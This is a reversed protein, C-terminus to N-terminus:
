QVTKYEIWKGDKLTEFVGWEPKGINRGKVRLPISADHQCYPLPDDLAIWGREDILANWEDYLDDLSDYWYDASCLDSDAGSYAFLCVGEGTQYLMIKCIYSSDDSKRPEKLWAYMRM